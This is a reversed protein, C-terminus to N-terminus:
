LSVKLIGGKRREEEHNREPAAAALRRRRNRGDASLASLVRPAPHGEIATALDM